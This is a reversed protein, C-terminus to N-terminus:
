EPEGIEFIVSGDPAKIEALKKGSDAFTKVPGVKLIRQGDTPIILPDTFDYKKFGKVSWFGYWDREAERKEVFERPDTLNYFLFYIYPRGLQQTVYIKDYHDELARVQTVMEKYGYQWQGFWEYPYHVYYNHLYYALSGSITIFLFLVLSSKIIMRQSKLWGLFSTFGVASIIQYTPLASAIRLMHPTERAMAAPIPAILLWGFVLATFKSKQKLLIFSGLLLFPLEFLYLEGVDQISLRPNRDGKIFLFEGKFHDIYHSLFERAFYVRRNHILRAWWTNGSQAIRENAKKVIDLSTFISVEDFRLRSERTQLYAINPWMLLSAILVSIIVAKKHQTLEKHYILALLILILPMVIRNANFTYFSLVFFIASIPLLWSKRLGYVFFVIGTLNFLAALHAEFAVRSLQLSWPSVSLLGAAVLATLKNHTTKVVLFYTGLIMLIGAVASPFRVAFESVGFFIYAPIIAYVYGPPKYDGFAIFRTLPFAEGHEDVGSTFLAYANYGLSAEDWYLAPPNQDLKYIRLFAAGALIILFFIKYRM